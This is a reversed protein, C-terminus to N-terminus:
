AAAKDARAKRARPEPWYEHWDDPRLAKVSIGTLAEFAKCKNPPIGRTKWNTLTQISEGLSAALVSLGGAKVAAREIATPKNM